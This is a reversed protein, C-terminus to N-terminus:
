RAAADPVARPLVARYGTLLVALTGAAILAIGTWVVATGGQLLATIIAGAVLVATVDIAGARALAAFWTGVYAALILGTGIAWSWQHWGIATLTSWKTTILTYGILILAGLGMRATGVTLASLSGLLRKVVVTEVAWLLTAAGIMATGSSLPIARLGHGLVAEGWVLAGIAAVHWVGLRERLAPVALLAVWIVLTKQIFAASTGSVRALGSFFLIFPVSGGIVAVVALGAWQAPGAPRTFGEGGARKGALALVAALVIAAVLNKATTYVTANGFARVGYSNTYV